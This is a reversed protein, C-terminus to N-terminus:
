VVKVALLLLARKTGFRKVDLGVWCPQYIICIVLLLLQCSRRSAFVCLHGGQIALKSIYIAILIGKCCSRLARVTHAIINLVHTQLTAQSTSLRHWRPYVM